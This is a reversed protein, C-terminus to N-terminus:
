QLTKLYEYLTLGSDTIKKALDTGVYRWHWAEAGYGTISETGPRYSQVFGYEVAHTNMWIYEPSKKFAELTFEASTGSRFDIATGLQHESHEPKAVTPFKQNPNATQNNSFLTQQIDSSRYASSVVLSLKEIKAAASMKELASVTPSTLCLISAGRVSITKPIPILNSPIYNGLGTDQSVPELSKDLQSPDKPKPCVITKEAVKLVADNDREFPRTEIIRFTKDQQSTLLNIEKYTGDPEITIDVILGRLTEASFPQDFIFNGLSYFILKGKYEAYNQVVHPHHGIILDAGADVSTEALTKQRANAPKYEDGWHYSIVLFDVSAKANKIIELRKPNSALLIGSATETAALWNPGVDSFALFGINMGNVSIIKVQEAESRTNGGGTYNIANDILRQRTDNFGAVNRDGAHNNALSVIDFGVKKLIPLIAPDMQFSYKSGVDDTVTTAPGELNAFAIDADRLFAVRDFLKSYDGGYNKNVSSEVGRDMMIDGVFIMHVQKKSVSKDGLLMPAELQNSPEALNRLWQQGPATKVFIAIAILVAVLISLGIKWSKNMHNM